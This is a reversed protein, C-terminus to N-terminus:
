WASNSWWQQDIPVLKRISLSAGRTGCKLTVRDHDVSVSRGSVWSMLTAYATFVSTSSIWRVERKGRRIETDEWWEGVLRSVPRLKKHTCAYCILLSWVDRDNMVICVGVALNWHTGQRIQETFVASASRPSSPPRSVPFMKEKHPHMAM